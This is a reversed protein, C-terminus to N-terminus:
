AAQVLEDTSAVVPLLMSHLWPSLRHHEHSHHTKFLALGGYERARSSKAKGHVRGHAGSKILVLELSESSRTLCVWPELASNKPAKTVHLLGNKTPLYLPLSSVGGFSARRSESRPSIRVRTFAIQASSGRTCRLAEITKEM